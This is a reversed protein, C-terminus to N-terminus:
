SEHGIERREILPMLEGAALAFLGADADSARNLILNDAAHLLARWCAFFPRSQRM